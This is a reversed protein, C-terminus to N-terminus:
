ATVKQFEDVVVIILRGPGHVGITLVREIDATRSPGTIFSIYNLQEPRLQELVTGMDGVIRDTGVIAIHITPLMSVLRKVVATADLVLTGTGSIAWDVQSIGVKSAASADKTVDFSIGPVKVKLDDKAVGDLFTDAAWVAGCQPATSVGEDKLFGLVFALAEEKGTFRHVEASVAEAKTKFAEFTTSM